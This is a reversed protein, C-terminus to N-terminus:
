QRSTGHIREALGRAAVGVTIGARNYLDPDVAYVRGEQV